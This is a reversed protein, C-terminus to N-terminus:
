KKVILILSSGLFPRYFSATACTVFVYELMSNIFAPPIKDEARQKGSLAKLKRIIYLPLVAWENFYACRKLECVQNDLLAMLTNKTYRRHHHLSVDWESWLAPLAPVTLLLIGDKKLVRLMETFMSGDDKVHELFDLGIVYEFSDSEFPLRLETLLRVDVGRKQACDRAVPSQDLGLARCKKWEVLFQGGGCGVDLLNFEPKPPLQKELWYRVIRRKGRYFWHSNEITALNQYEFAEM